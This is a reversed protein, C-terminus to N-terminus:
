FLVPTDPESMVLTLLLEPPELPLEWPLLLLLGLDPPAVPSDIGIPARKTAMPM